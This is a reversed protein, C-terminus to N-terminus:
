IVPWHCDLADAVLRLQDVRALGQNGNVLGRVWAMEGAVHIIEYVPGRNNGIMVRDGAAKPYNCGTPLRLDPCLVEALSVM